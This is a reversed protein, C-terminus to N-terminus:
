INTAALATASAESVAGDAACGMRMGPMVIGIGSFFFGAAFFFGDAFFGRAGFFAAGL